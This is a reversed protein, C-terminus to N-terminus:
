YYFDLKFESLSIVYKLKNKRSNQKEDYYDSFFDTKPQFTSHHSALSTECYWIVIDYENFIFFFLVVKLRPTMKM